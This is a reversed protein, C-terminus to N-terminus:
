EHRGRLVDIGEERITTNLEELADADTAFLENWVTSTTDRINLQCFPAIRQYGGSPKETLEDLLM